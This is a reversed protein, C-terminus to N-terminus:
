EHNKITTPIRKIRFKYKPMTPQIRKAPIMTTRAPIKPSIKPLWQQGVLFYSKKEFCKIISGEKIKM